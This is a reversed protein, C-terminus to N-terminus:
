EKSGQQAHYHNRNLKHQVLLRSITGTHRYPL